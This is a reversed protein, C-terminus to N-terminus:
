LRLRFPEHAIADEECNARLFEESVEAKQFAWGAARGYEGQRTAFDQMKFQEHKVQKRKNNPRRGAFGTM